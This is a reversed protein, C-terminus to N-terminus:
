AGQNNINIFVKATNLATDIKERLPNFADRSHLVKDEEKEMGPLICLNTDNPFNGPHIEVYSHGPIGSLLPVRMKFRPSDYMTIEYRGEPIAVIGRPDKEKRCTPELTYCERKKSDNIFLEGITSKDSFWKRTLYIEMNPLDVAKKYGTWKTRLIISIKPTDANGANWLKELLKKLFLTLFNM